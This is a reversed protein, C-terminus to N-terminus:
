RACRFTLSGEGNGAWRGMPQMRAQADARDVWQGALPVVAHRSQAKYTADPHSSVAQFDCAPATPTGDALM